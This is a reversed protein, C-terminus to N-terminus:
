FIFKRVLEATKGFWGLNAGTSTNSNTSHIFNSPPSLRHAGLNTVTTVSPNRRVVNAINSNFGNRDQILRVQKRLKRAKKLDAISILFIVCIILTFIKIKNFQM